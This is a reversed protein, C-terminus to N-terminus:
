TKMQFINVVFDLTEKLNFPASELKFVGEKLLTLNLLDEVFSEVLVLQSISIKLLNKSNDLDFFNSNSIVGDLIAQLIQNISQLPTRLEHSITSKYSETQGSELM